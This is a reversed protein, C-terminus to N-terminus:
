KEGALRKLAELLGASSDVKIPGGDEGTVAQAPKGYGRDLLANAAKIRVEHNAAGDETKAELAEVLARVAEETKARCLKRVREGDATRGGLKNGPQFPM